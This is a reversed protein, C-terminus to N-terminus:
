NETEADEAEDEDGAEQTYVVVERAGMRALTEFLEELADVPASGLDVVFSGQHNEWEPDSMYHIVGHIEVDEGDTNADEADFWREFWALLPKWNAKKPGAFMVRCWNWQFGEMTIKLDNSWKFQIPDFTLMGDTDVSFVRTVAGDAVLAVDKRLPLSFPGERVIKGEADVMAGELVVDSGERRREDAFGILRQIYYTRIEELLESLRM